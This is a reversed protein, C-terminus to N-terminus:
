DNAWAGYRQVDDMWQLDGTEQKKGSPGAGATCDLIDTPNMDMAIWLARDVVTSRLSCRDM